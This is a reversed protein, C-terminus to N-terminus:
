ARSEDFGFEEAFRDLASDIPLAVSQGLGCLSTAHLMRSLHRLRDGDGPAPGSTVLRELLMRAERTGERCPTCKGCSEVEFFRLLWLLLEAARVSDDLVLMGGSGVSVGQHRADFDIAVDLADPGVLTGAAGGTLAMHFKAGSRMGGGFQDILQRLTVGFPVEVVGPRNVHGTITFLKTGASGATGLSRYWAGGREVIAPLACLTEVNNVLTPLGHLGSVTPYPPRIRPEGRKGELSELLATEEGCIYAGAGRHVHVTFSFSTGDINRGLRGAEVAQAIARELRRAATEYEGRIYVIGSEARVALAALAMGELVLHPDGELLVRDKFAAPESEDANCVVHKPSARQSAVLRMKRGTPFGAGGRGRLGSEEVEFVVRDTPRRLAASLVRYAGHALADDLSEPDVRGVRAMKVRMEGPLPQAYSPAEGRWGEAISGANETGIPGCPEDDVLAAPARDCLGLCSTREVAWENADCAAAIGAQLGAAGCAMCVPGDCVRVVRAARPRTALMSYFSAVGFAQAQSVGLAGAAAQVVPPDLYGRESQARQLVPLLNEPAHGSEAVAADVAADRPPRYHTNARM